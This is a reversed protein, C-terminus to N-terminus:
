YLAKAFSYLIVPVNEGGKGVIHLSLLFLFDYKGWCASIVCSVLFFGFFWFVFILPLSILRCFSRKPWASLYCGNGLNIFLASLQYKTSCM